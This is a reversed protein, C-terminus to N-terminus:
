SPSQTVDPVTLDQQAKTASSLTVDEAVGAKRSIAQRVKQWDVKDSINLTQLLAKAEREIGKTKAYIDGHVELFIRGQETTAVKVPQYIIEGPTNVRVVKFLEEM